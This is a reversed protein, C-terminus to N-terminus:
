AGNKLKKIEKEPLGTVKSIFSIDAKEKLMNLIVEQRGEQRGEQHGEKRGEQRGEQRGERLGKKMGELLGEEKINARVDMFGGKKLIGEKLARKEVKNWLKRTMGFSGFYGAISLILSEDKKTFSGFESLVKVLKGETMKEKLSWIRRFINLIAKSKKFEKSELLKSELAHVDLLRLKFDLMNERFSSPMKSFYDKFFTEQFSLKWKWAEKGHYFGILIIPQPCGTEQIAREHMSSQYYLFRSFLQKEYRSKHELLISIRLRSSSDKKLPVSYNLDASKGEKFSDKELRAKSWDCAQWEEKTLILKFLEVAFRPNSYVEKFFKDHPNHAKRLLTKSDSEPKKIKKAM